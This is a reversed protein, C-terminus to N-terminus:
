AKPVAKYQAYIDHIRKRLQKIKRADEERAFVTESISFIADSLNDIVHETAECWEDTCQDAMRAADRIDTELQNVANDLGRIYDGWAAQMANYTKTHWKQPM